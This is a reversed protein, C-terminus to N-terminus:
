LILFMVRMMYLFRHTNLIFILGNKKPNKDALIKCSVINAVYPRNKVDAGYQLFLEVLKKDGEVRWLPNTDIWKFQGTMKNPNAGQKLLKEVEQYCKDDDTILLAMEMQYELTKEDVGQMRKTFSFNQRPARQMNKGECAILSLAIIPILQIMKM